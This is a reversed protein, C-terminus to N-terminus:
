SSAAASTSPPSSKAPSSPRGRWRCRCSPNWSRPSPRSILRFYAGKFAERAATQFAIDSSDVPHSQGDTLAAKVGVIPFGILQGKVMAAKFGKDCSPIFERPIHGGKVKDIFEYSGEPWPELHGVVRGFQGSGGTQKKHTYDFDARQTISERYAVQPM